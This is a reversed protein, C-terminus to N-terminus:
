NPPVLLGNSARCRSVKKYQLFIICNRLTIAYQYPLDPALTKINDLNEKFNWTTGDPGDELVIGQQVLEERFKDALEFNKHDFDNSEALLARQDRPFHSDFQM